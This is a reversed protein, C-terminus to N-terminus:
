YREPRNLWGTKVWWDPNESKISEEAQKAQENTDYLGFCTAGSGSMRAIRCQDTAELAYIVNKISATCQIAPTTLDNDYTKLANILKDQSSVDQPINKDKRYKGNHHLFVDQTNCSVMPNVLIMPIEPMPPAATIKDGIGRMIQPSCSFCVPVDAGLKTMLPLLYDADHSLSWIEQLGWLTAAADSSGGGIGSALPLNKTLTIKVNLPMDTIQALARAARVVLNDGDIFSTSENEKFKHAFPGKIHFSFNHAAEIEIIDGIDAFCVLSDLTHYGNALRGTLHLFMNIKAPAFVTIVKQSM